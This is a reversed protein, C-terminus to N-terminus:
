RNSCIYWTDGIWMHVLRSVISSMVNDHCKDAKHNM